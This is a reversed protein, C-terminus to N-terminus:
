NIINAYNDIIAKFVINICYDIGKKKIDKNNEFPMDEGGIIALISVTKVKYTSGLIFLHSSEMESAIVGLKKLSNMYCKSEQSLPGFGYERVMLSDKTHVIGVKNPINLINATTELYNVLLRDAISPFEIPAYHKSTSEDRVASSSIVISGLPTNQLNFGGATGIRIFVKAGLQILETIIIDVSPCGMGTNIIGILINTKPINGLYLNHGRSSNNIIVNELKNNAIYKSRGSSGPIIFIRNYTDSKTINIHEPIFDNTM